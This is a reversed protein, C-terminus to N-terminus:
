SREARLDLAREHSDFAAGVANRAKHLAHAKTRREPTHRMRELECAFDPVIGFAHARNEFSFRGYEISELGFESAGNSLFRGKRADVRYRECVGFRRMTGDIKYDTLATLARRVRHHRGVRGRAAGAGFFHKRRAVAAPTIRKGVASVATRAKRDRAADGVVPRHCRHGRKRHAGFAPGFVFIRGITTKMSLGVCTGHAARLQPQDVCAAVRNGFVIRDLLGRFKQLCAFDDGDFAKAAKMQGDVSGIM